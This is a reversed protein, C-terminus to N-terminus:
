GLLKSLERNRKGMHRGAVIILIGWIPYAIMFGNLPPYKALFAWGMLLILLGSLQLMLDSLLRCKICKNNILLAINIIVGLVNAWFWFWWDHKSFHYFNPMLDGGIYRAYLMICVTTLMILITFIKIETAFHTSIWQRISKM